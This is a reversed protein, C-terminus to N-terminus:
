LTCTHTHKYMRYAYVRRLITCAYTYRARYMMRIRYNVFQALSLYSKNYTISNSKKKTLCAPHELLTHEFKQQPNTFNIPVRTGLHQMLSNRPTFGREGMHLMTNRLICFTFHLLVSFFDSNLRLLYWFHLSRSQSTYSTNKCKFNAGRFVSLIDRRQM